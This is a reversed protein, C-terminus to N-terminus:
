RANCLVSCLIQRIVSAYTNIFDWKIHMLNRLTITGIDGSVLLFQPLWDTCCM